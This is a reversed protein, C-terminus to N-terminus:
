DPWDGFAHVEIVQAAIAAADVRVVKFGDGWALVRHTSEPDSATGGLGGV